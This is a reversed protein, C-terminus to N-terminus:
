QVTSMILGRPSSFALRSASASLSTDVQDNDTRPTPFQSHRHRARQARNLRCYHRAATILQNNVDKGPHGRDRLHEGGTPLCPQPVQRVQPREADPLRWGILAPHRNGPRCDRQRRETRQANSTSTLPSGAVWVVGGVTSLLVTNDGLWGPCGAHPMRRRAPHDTRQKFNWTPNAGERPRRIIVSKSAHAGEHGEGSGGHDRRSCVREDGGRVVVAAGRARM